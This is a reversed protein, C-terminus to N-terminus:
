QRASRGLWQLANRQGPVEDRDWRNGGPGCISPYVPGDDVRGGHRHDGKSNQVDFIGQETMHQVQADIHRFRVRVPLLVGGESRDHKFLLAVHQDPGWIAAWEPNSLAPAERVM